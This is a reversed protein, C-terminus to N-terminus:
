LNDGAPQLRHDHNKRGDNVVWHKRADDLMAEMKQDMSSPAPSGKPGAYPDAGHRLLDQAMFVNGQHVAVWLATMGGGDPANPSAGRSLLLDVEESNNADAATLILPKALAKNDGHQFTQRVIWFWQPDEETRVYSNPSVGSDLLSRLEAVDGRAAVRSAAQRKAEGMLWLTQYM